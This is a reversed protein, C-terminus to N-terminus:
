RAVPDNLNETVPTSAEILKASRSRQRKLEDTLTRTEALKVRAGDFLVDLNTLVVHDGSTLGSEIIALGPLARCITVEEQTVVGNREVFARDGLVADRPVAIARKLIPGDIRAQVFTGPLLPSSQTSNDVQVFVMATRTHEDAKPSIRVVRGTWRAPATENDALEVAPFQRERVDPLLRAYDELTVSVPIEILSEDTITVLPEGARVYKGIEVHVSSLIGDFPPRVSTRALEIEALKLDAQHSEIRRQVLARRAPLLNRDNDSQVLSQEHQRLEMKARRLDSDTTVGQKRLQQSKEFERQSDEFNAAITKHLRELNVEEQQIRDLEAQDEALHTRSQAVIAEYTTPDIRVLLDGDPGIVDTGKIGNADEASQRRPAHVRLGVKLQPHIESIEGSVQASLVVERGAQSTGFAHVVERLDHPEVSFVEVNYTRQAPERLEPPRKLLTLGYSVAFGLSLAAVVLVVSSLVRRKQSVGRAEPAQLNTV